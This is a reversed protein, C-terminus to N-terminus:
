AAAPVPGVLGQQPLILAVLQDDLYRAAEIGTKRM